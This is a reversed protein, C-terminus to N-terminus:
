IVFLPYKYILSCTFSLKIQKKKLLTAVELTLVLIYNYRYICLFISIYYSLYICAYMLLYISPNMSIYIYIYIPTSLYTFLLYSSLYIQLFLYRRIYVSLLEFHQIRFAFSGNLGLTWNPYSSRFAFAYFTLSHYISM